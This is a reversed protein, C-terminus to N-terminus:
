KDVCEFLYIRQCSGGGGRRYKYNFEGKIIRIKAANGYLKRSGCVVAFVKAVMGLMNKNKAVLVADDADLAVITDM